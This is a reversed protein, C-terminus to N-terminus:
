NSYLMRSYYIQIVMLQCEAYVIIQYRIDAIFTKVYIIDCNAPVFYLQFAALCSSLDPCFKACM